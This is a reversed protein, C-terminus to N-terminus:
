GPTCYSFHREFFPSFRLTPLYSFAQVCTNRQEECFAVREAPNNTSCGLQSSVQFLTYCYCDNMKYTEKSKKNLFWLSRLGSLRRIELSPFILNVSKPNDLNVRSLLLDM